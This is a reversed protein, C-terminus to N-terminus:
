EQAMATMAKLVRRHGWNAVFYYNHSGQLRFVSGPHGVLKRLISAEVTILTQLDM